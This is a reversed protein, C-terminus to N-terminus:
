HSTKAAVGTEALLRREELKAITSGEPNDQRMVIISVRRNQANLPDSLKLLQNDAYGVVRTVQGRRLGSRAMARRASNARDSSLEWNSYGPDSGLYPRADTHGEIAVENPLRGALRAIIGLLRRTGPKLTASGIDFFLSDDKEVLEVRLGDPTIDIHIQDRIARFEPDLDLLEALQKAAAQLTAIDNAAEAPRALFGATNPLVSDGGGHTWIKPERFYSGIASRVQPDLSSAWLVIFIAMLTTVLDAYAVKWTGHNSESGKKRRTVFRVEPPQDRDPHLKKGAM